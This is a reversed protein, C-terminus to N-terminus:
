SAVINSEYRLTQCIEKYEGMKTGLLEIISTFMRIIGNGCKHGIIGLIM